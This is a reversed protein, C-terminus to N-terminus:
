PTIGRRELEARLLKLANISKRSLTRVSIGLLGATEIMTKGQIERYLIVSKEPEPLCLIAERIAKKLIKKELRESPTLAPDVLREAIRTDGENQLRKERRHHNFYLNRAVIRAWALFRDSDSRIRDKLEHARAFVEQTLDAAITENRSLTVLYRFIHGQFKRYLGDIEDEM